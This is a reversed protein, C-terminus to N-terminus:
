RPWSYLIFVACLIAVIVWRIAKPLNAGLPSDARPSCAWWRIGLALGLASIANILIPLERAYPFHFRNIWSFAGITHGLTFLLCVALALTTPLLLILGVFALVWVTLGAIFAVPSHTLLIRFGPTGELVRSHDGAWYAAPQGVLTVSGDLVALLLPVLCLGFLRRTNM